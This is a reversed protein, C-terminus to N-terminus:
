LLIREVRMTKIKKVRKGARNDLCAKSTKTLKMMNRGSGSQRACMKAFEIVWLQYQSKWSQVENNLNQMSISSSLIPNRTSVLM